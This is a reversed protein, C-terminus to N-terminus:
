KSFVFYTVKDTDTIEEPVSVLVIKDHEYSTHIATLENTTSILKTGAENYYSYNGNDDMICYVSDDIVEFSSTSSENYTYIVKEEGARLSIIKYDDDAGSKILITDGLTDFIEVDKKSLDYVSKLDMDYISRDGVFYNGVVSLSNNMSHVVNGKADVITVGGDLMPVSYLGDAIKTPLEAAQNDVIKLSKGLKAKNNMLVINKDAESSLIKGDVIPRITAINEFKDVFYNEEATKDDDYLDSNRTIDDIVYELKLEKSKGNKATILASVLDAKITEEGDVITLDYKTTDEDLVVFYQVIMDGNNLIYFNLDYISDDDFDPATWTSVRNFSRDYLSIGSETLAYFYTDNYDVMYSINMYEPIELEKVLKGTENDVKYAVHDYVLLDAIQTVESATESSAILQAAADYLYYTTTIEPTIEFDEVDAVVTKTVLLAPFDQVPTFAFSTNEDTTFSLIVSDSRLSLVKYTTKTYDETDELAFIMFEDSANEPNTTTGALASLETSKTYPESSLDYDVNLVASVDKVAAIKGGACSTLLIASLLLATVLLIIRSRKMIIRRDNFINPVIYRDM